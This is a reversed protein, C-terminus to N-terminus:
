QWYRKLVVATRSGGSTATVKVTVQQTGDDEAGSALLAACENTFTWGGTAANLTGIKVDTVDIQKIGPPLEFPPDGEAPNFIADYAGKPDDVVGGADTCQRYPAARLTDVARRVGADLTSRDRTDASRVVTASLAAAMTTSVAGMIAVTILLEVLTVGRADVAARRRWRAGPQARGRRGLGPLM